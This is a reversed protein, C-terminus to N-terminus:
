RLVLLYDLKASLTYQKGRALFRFNQVRQDQMEIYSHRDRLFTLLLCIEEPGLGLSLQIAKFWTNYWAKVLSSAQNSNNYHYVTVHLSVHVTYKHRARTNKTLWMVM